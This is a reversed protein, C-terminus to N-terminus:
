PLPVITVRAKKTKERLLAHRWTIMPPQALHCGSRDSHLGGELDMLLICILCSLYGSTGGLKYVM